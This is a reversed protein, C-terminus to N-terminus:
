TQHKSPRTLKPQQELNTIDAIAVEDQPLKGIDSVPQHQSLQLETSNDTSNLNSQPQTQASPQQKLPKFPRKTSKLIVKSVTLKVLNASYLGILSHM